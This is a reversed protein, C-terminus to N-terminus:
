LWISRTAYGVTVASQAARNKTELSVLTEILLHHKDFSLNLRTGM